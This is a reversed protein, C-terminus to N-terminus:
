FPLDDTLIFPNGEVSFINRVPEPPPIFHQLSSDKNFGDGCTPCVIYWAYNSSVQRHYNNLHKVIKHGKTCHNKVWFENCNRCTYYYKPYGKATYREEVDVDKCGCKWCHGHMGVRYEMILRFWNKFAFTASPILYISGYKHADESNENIKDPFFKRNYFAFYNEGSTEKKMGYEGDSHIIFSGLKRHNWVSDTSVMEGYKQIAVEEIDQKWAFEGQDLYNRHKADMFVMGICTKERYIRFVFDPKRKNIDGYPRDKWINIVPEYDLEIRWEDHHLTAHFDKLLDKRSPMIFSDICKAVDEFGALDWGMETTLLHVIKFLVWTEFLQEVKQIGFQKSGVEPILSLGVEEQLAQLSRWISRYHPDHLFLQTPHLQETGTIKISRFLPLMLWQEIKAALKQFLEGDEGQREREGAIRQMSELAKKDFKIDLRKTELAESAKDREMFFVSLERYIDELESTKNFSKGAIKVGTVRTMEFSYRRFDSDRQVQGIIDQDYENPPRHFKALGVIEIEIPQQKEMLEDTVQNCAKWLMWHDKLSNSNNKITLFYSSPPVYVTQGKWKYYYGDFELPTIGTREERWGSEVSSLLSGYFWRLERKFNLTNVKCKIKIPVTASEPLNRPTVNILQNLIRTQKEEIKEDIKQLEKNMELIYSLYDKSPIVEIPKNGILGKVRESGKKFIMEMENIKQKDYVKTLPAKQQYFECYKKLRILQLKIMKNEEQEWDEYGKFVGYKEKGPFLVQEIETRMRFKEGKGPKGSEWRFSLSSAPNVNISHIPGELERVVKELREATEEKVTGISVNTKNRQVLDERIKFLDSIMIEYDEMSIASPYFAITQSEIISGQKKVVIDLTGAHAVGSVWDRNDYKYYEEHDKKKQFKSVEYWIKEEKHFFLEREQGPGDHPSVFSVTAEEIDDGELAIGVQLMRKEWKGERNRLQRRFHNQTYWCGRELDYQVPEVRQCKLIPLTKDKSLPANHDYEIDIM